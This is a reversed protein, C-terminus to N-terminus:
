WLSGGMINSLLVPHRCVRTYHVIITNSIENPLLDGWPLVVTLFFEQKLGNRTCFFLLHKLDDSVWLYLILLGSHVLVM